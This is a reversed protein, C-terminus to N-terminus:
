SQLETVQGHQEGHYRVELFFGSGLRRSVETIAQKRRRSLSDIVSKSLRCEAILDDTSLESISRSMSDALSVARTDLEAVEATVKKASAKEHEERKGSQLETEPMAKRKNQEIADFGKQCFPAKWPHGKDPKAAKSLKPEKQEDEPFTEHELFLAGKAIAEGGAPTLKYQGNAMKQVYGEDILDICLEKWESFAMVPYTDSLVDIVPRMGCPGLEALSKLFDLKM